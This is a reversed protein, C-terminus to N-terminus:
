CRRSHQARLFAHSARFLVRVEALTARLLSSSLVQAKGASDPAAFSQSVSEGNSSQPAPPPNVYTHRQIEGSIFQSYLKAKELLVDLQTLKSPSATVSAM